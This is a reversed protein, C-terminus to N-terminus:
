FQLFLIFLRFGRFFSLVTAAHPPSPVTVGEELSDITTERTSTGTGSESGQGPFFFLYPVPVSRRDAPRPPSRAVRPAGHRLGFINPACSASPWAPSYLAVTPILEFAYVSVARHRRACFLRPRQFVPARCARVHNICRLFSAALRGGCGPSSAPVAHRQPSPGVPDQPAGRRSAAAPLLFFLAPL